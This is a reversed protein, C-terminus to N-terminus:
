LKAKQSIVNNKNVPNGSLSRHLFELQKAWSHEQARCHPLPKGGYRLYAKFGNFYAEPCHPIYPPEILHGAGPYRLTTFNPHNESKLLRDALNCFYESPCDEDDLGAIYLYSVNQRKHFKFYSSEFTAENYSFPFTNRSIVSGQPTVQLITNDADVEDAWFIAKWKHGKYTHDNHIAAIGCNIAVVCNIDSLCDAMALAIQGGKCVGVVGIGRDSNVNAHSKMFDVANEFYEMELKIWDNPLGDIGFYSLALAAFGHSAFLAAKYELTGAVGGFLNIM